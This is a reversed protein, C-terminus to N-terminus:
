DDTAPNDDSSHLARRSLEEEGAQRLLEVPVSRGTMREVQLVAQHALLDLGSVLIRGSAATDTALPTPWPDYVVDFVVPVRQVAARLRQDQAAVPITSVVVDATVDQLSELTQVEVTPAHAQRQVVALTEEARAPDRVALVARRCGLDTLALLTSAATAGGGLVVATELGDETRERLAERTGPVDTNYAARSGGELVLTNAAGAIRAWDDVSDALPLVARKLPMTLSLGRWTPDLGDLFAGLQETGVEIAEYSWDLGLVAYAARHLAPSLSHAIPSGLVACRRAGTASTTM